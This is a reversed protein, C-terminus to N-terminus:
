NGVLIDRWRRLIRCEQFVDDRSKKGKELISFDLKKLLLWGLYDTLPFPKFFFFVVGILLLLYSDFCYLVLSQFICSLIFSTEDTPCGGVKETPQTWKCRGVLSTHIHLSAESPVFSPQHSPEAPFPAPWQAQPGSNFRILSVHCFPLLSEKLTDVLREVCAGHHVHAWLYYILLFTLNPQLSSEATLLRLYQEWLPGSSREWCGPWFQRYSTGALGPLEPRRPYRYRCSCNKYFSFTWTWNYCSCLSAPADTNSKEAHTHRQCCSRFSTSSISWLIGVLSCRRGWVFFTRDTM